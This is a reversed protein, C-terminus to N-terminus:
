ERTRTPSVTEDRGIDPHSYQRITTAIDVPAVAITCYLITSSSVTWKLKRRHACSVVRVFPNNARNWWQIVVISAPDTWTTTTTTTTAM